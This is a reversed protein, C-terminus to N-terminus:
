PIHNTDWYAEHYKENNRSTPPLLKEMEFINRVREVYNLIGIM